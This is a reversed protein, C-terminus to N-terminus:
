CALWDPKSIDFDLEPFFDTIRKYKRREFAHGFFDVQPCLLVVGVNVFEATERYPRFRAIAYNCVFKNM